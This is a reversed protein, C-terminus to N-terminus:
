MALKLRSRPSVVPSSAALNGPLWSPGASSGTGNGSGAAVAGVEVDLLVLEALDEGGVDRRLDGVSIAAVCRGIGGDASSSLAVLAAHFVMGDHVM